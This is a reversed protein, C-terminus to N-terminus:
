PRALEVLRATMASDPDALPAIIDFHHRGPIEEYRTAVGLRGWNEVILRSQRHYESSEAGGVVADLALSLNGPPSWLAPSWLAPSMMRASTADLGLKGNISTPVLAELDFLGSIAYASRVLGDPLSEDVRKWDTALLCAAIHGGASHGAVVIPRGLRAIERCASRLQDVIEAVTVDPCLDYGPVAVSVGHANLGKAMHSFLNRDLSQWYGGHVFVVTAGANPQAPTFLDLAQRPSPGYPLATPANRERYVLAEERWLDFIAPHEPVRARNNYEAELDLTPPELSITM